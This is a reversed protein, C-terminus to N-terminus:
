WNGIIIPGYGDDMGDADNDSYAMAWLLFALTAAFLLLVVHDRGQRLKRFLKAM